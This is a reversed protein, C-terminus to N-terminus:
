NRFGMKRKPKVPEEMLQRIAEFVIKFQGDYKRELSNLKKSLDTNTSILQRIKVFARMIEINVQIARPSNLVSSLMAVGQETFAYPTYKRHAGRNSTELTVIQSRLFALEQYNLQFMFDSPFRELNRKVAQNLTKVEVGYMKALDSDLIVKEGRFLYISDQINQVPIIQPM